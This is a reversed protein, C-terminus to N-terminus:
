TRGCLRMTPAEWPGKQYGKLIQQLVMPLKPAPEPVSEGWGELAFLSQSSSASPPHDRLLAPRRASSSNSVAAVAVRRKKFVLNNTTDAEDDFVIEVVRKLPAPASSAGATALPV